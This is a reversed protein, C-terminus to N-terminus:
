AGKPRGPKRKKLVDAATEAPKAAQTMESLAKRLDEEKKAPSQVYEPRLEEFHRSAFDEDIVVVHGERYFKGDSAVNNRLVLYKKVQGM